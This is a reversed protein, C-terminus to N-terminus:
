GAYGTLMSVFIITLVVFTIFTYLYDKELVFGIASFIVRIVPTAILLVIGAQIIARGKFNIVGDIIGGPMVFCPIGKFLHYDAVTHGNRYLYIAGGLLVIVISLLVGIRLVWGIADQIATDKIKM